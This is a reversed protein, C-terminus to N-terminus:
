HKDKNFKSSFSMFCFLELFKSSKQKFKQVLKPNKFYFVLLRDFLGM